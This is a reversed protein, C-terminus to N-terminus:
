GVVDHMWRKASKMVYAHGGVIQVCLAPLNHDQDVVEHKAKLKGNHVIYGNVQHRKCWELIQIATVGEEKGPAITESIADFEAQVEIRDMKYKACIQRVVCNVGDGEVFAEDM